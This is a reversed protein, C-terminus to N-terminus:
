KARMECEKILKQLVRTSEEEPHAYKRVLENMFFDEFLRMMEKHSIIVESHGQALNYDTNAELMLIGIGEYCAIEADRIQHDDKLFFLHFYPNSRQQELMLSLIATREEWTYPRMGWFHDSAKGTLMFKRMAEKKLVTYAHKKKSFSNQVRRNYVEYLQSYVAHFDSGHPISGERLAAALISTPIWDVGIDPKIKWITRNRELAAYDRSYQVYDDLASCEFYTRKIPFYQEQNLNLLHWFVECTGRSTIRTGANEGHFAILDEHKEGNPDIYSCVMADAEMFGKPIQPTSVDNQFYAYGRYGKQYFVPMLVNMAYITRANDTNVYIYHDIAANSQSILKQLSAYLTVYPCNVLTIRLQTVGSYLQLLSASRGTAAEVIQVDQPMSPNNGQIFNWMECKALYNPKGHLTIQVARHLDAKEKETLCFDQNMSQEFRIISSERTNDDMIREISTKSKYSLQEALRTLSLERTRIFNEIYQRMESM